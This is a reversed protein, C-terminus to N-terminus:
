QRGHRGEFLWRHWRFSMRGPPGSIPRTRLFLGGVVRKGSARAAAVDARSAPSLKDILAETKGRDHWPAQDDLLDVLRLNTAPPAPLRWWLWDEALGPPFSAVARHLATPTYLATSGCSVLLEPIGLDRRAAVVFVRPRSQPLFHVADIVVAGFRYGCDRLAVCIDVFDRGGKSTILGTVNEIVCLKPARGKASLAKMLGIFPWFAGSRKGDLGVGAGALSVDQCPPSSWALAAEGPLDTVKLAAVDAVKLEARGWNARYVAAKTRDHDNAFTCRFQPGLGARAAGIGAFFEYLAARDQPREAAAQHEKRAERAKNEIEALERRIKNEFAALHGGHRFITLGLPNRYVDRVAAPDVNGYLFRAIAQAGIMLDEAVTKVDDM